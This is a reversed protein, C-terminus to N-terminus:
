RVESEPGKNFPLPDLSEFDSLVPGYWSFGDKGEFYRGKPIPHWYSCIRKGKEGYAYEVWIIEPLNTDLEPPPYKCYWGAKSYDREM